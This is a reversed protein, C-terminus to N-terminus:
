KSFLIKDLKRKAILTGQAELVDHPLVQAPKGHPRTLGKSLKYASMLHLDFRESCIHVDKQVALAVSLTSKHHLLRLFMSLIVGHKSELVDNRHHRLSVLRVSIKHATLFSFCEDHIFVKDCKVARSAWFPSLWVTDPTLVALSLSVDPCAIDASYFTAADM